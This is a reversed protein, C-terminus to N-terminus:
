VGYEASFIAHTAAPGGNRARHADNVKTERANALM